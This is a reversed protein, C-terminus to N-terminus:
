GERSRPKRKGQRGRGAGTVDTQGIAIDKANKRKKPPSSLAAVVVQAIPDGEELALTFPGLNYIELTVHGWWGAQITPATMHVLLGTRARSSKGNVFCILRPDLEPTGVVEKTQWLFFGGPALIIRDGDRYVPPAPGAKKGRPVPVLFKKAFPKHQFTGIGLVAPVGAQRQQAAYGEIDWVKAEEVTDLHLDISTTDIEKPPPDLILQRADLVFTLDRDSLYM